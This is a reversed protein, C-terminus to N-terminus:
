RQRLRYIPREFFFHVAVAVAYIAALQVIPPAPVAAILPLHFVYAAYSAAGLVILSAGVVRASGRIVGGGDDLGPLLLALVGAILIPFGIMWEVSLRLGDVSNDIFAFHYLWIAAFLAIAAVTGRGAPIRPLVSRYTYACWGAMFFILNAELSQYVLTAARDEPLLGYGLWYVLKVAVGLGLLLAPVWRWRHAAISILPALLYFQCETALSWLATNPLPPVIYNNVLLLAPWNEWLQWRGSLALTVVIALYYTPLIRIARNRYYGYTGAEAYDRDLIKAMLYGSLCFFVFVAYSGSIAFAGLWALGTLSALARGIGLHHCVVFLAVIGRLALLGDSRFPLRRAVDHRSAAREGAADPAVVAEM